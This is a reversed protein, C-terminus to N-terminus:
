RDKKSKGAQSQEKPEEFQKSLVMDDM